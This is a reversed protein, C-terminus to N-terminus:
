GLPDGDRILDSVRISMSLDTESELTVKFGLKTYLSIARPNSRLVKLSCGVVRGPNLVQRAFERYMEKALGRGRFEEHLDAGIEWVQPSIVRSRFYGIKQGKFTTIWYSGATGGEFWALTEELTFTRPDHLFAASSNRVEGFFELDDISLLLFEYSDGNVRHSSTLTM